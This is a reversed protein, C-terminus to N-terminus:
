CRNSTPIGDGNTRQQLSTSGNGLLSAVCADVESLVVPKELVIDAKQETALEVANDGYGTLAIVPLKPFRRKIISIVAIGSIDPMVIDTIVLDIGSAGEGLIVLGDLGTNATVVQFHKRKFFEGMSALIEPSDDIILLKAM